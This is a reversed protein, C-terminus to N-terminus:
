KATEEDANDNRSRDSMAFMFSVFAIMFLLDWSEEDHVGFAAVGALVSTLVIGVAAKKYDGDVSWFSEGKKRPSPATSIIMLPAVILFLVIDVTDAIAFPETPPVFHRVWRVAGVMVVFASMVVAFYRLAYHTEEDSIDEPKKKSM